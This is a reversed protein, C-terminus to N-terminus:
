YLWNSYAHGNLIALKVLGHADQHVMKFMQEEQTFTCNLVQDFHDNWHLFGVFLVMHREHGM